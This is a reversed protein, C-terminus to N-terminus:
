FSAPAGLVQAAYNKRALHIAAPLSASTQEAGVNASAQILAALVRNKFVTDGSLVVMDNFSFAM